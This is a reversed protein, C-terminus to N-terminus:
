ISQGQGLANRHPSFDITNKARKILTLETKERYFPNVNQLKEKIWEKLSTPQQELWEKAQPAERHVIKMTNEHKFMKDLVLARVARDPHRKVMYDYFEATRPNQKIFDNLRMDVDERIRGIFQEYNDNVPPLNAAGDVPTKPKLAM